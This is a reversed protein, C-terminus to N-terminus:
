PHLIFYHLKRRLRKHLCKKKIQTWNLIKDTDAISLNNESVFKAFEDVAKENRKEIASESMIKNDIFYSIARSTIFYTIFALLVAALIVLAM